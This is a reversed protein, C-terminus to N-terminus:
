GKKIILLLLLKIDNDLQAYEKVKQTFLDIIKYDSMVFIYITAFRSM